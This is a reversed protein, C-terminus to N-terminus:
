ALSCLAEKEQKTWQTPAATTAWPRVTSHTRKGAVEQHETIRATTHGDNAAQSGGEARTTVVAVGAATVAGCTAAIRPSVSGVMAMTLLPHRVVVVCVVSTHNEPVVATLMSRTIQIPEVYRRTGPRYSDVDAGLRGADRDDRLRGTNRGDRGRDDRMRGGRGRTDRDNRRTNNRRREVGSDEDM